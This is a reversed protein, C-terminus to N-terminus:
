PTLGLSPMHASNHKFSQNSLSQYNKLMVSDPHNQFPSGLFLTGFLWKGFDIQFLLQRSTWQKCFEPCGNGILHNVMLKGMRPEILNTIIFMVYKYSFRDVLSSACAALLFVLILRECINKLNPRGSFKAFNVPFCRHQLRKKIFNCVRLGAVNNFLSQLM